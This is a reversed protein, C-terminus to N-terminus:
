LDRTMELYTSGDWNQARRILRYGRARYFPEAHLAVGAKIETAGTRTRFDTEVHRLLQTALGRRTWAPDVYVHRLNADKWGALGVVTGDATRATFLQYHAIMDRLEDESVDALLTAVEEPSYAAPAHRAFAAYRIELLRPVDDPRAEDVTVSVM